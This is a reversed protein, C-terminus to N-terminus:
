SGTAQDRKRKKKDKSAATEKKHNLRSYFAFRMPKLLSILSSGSTM